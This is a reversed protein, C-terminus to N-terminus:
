SQMINSTNIKVLFFKFFVEGWRKGKARKRGSCVMPAHNVFCTGYRVGTNQKRLRHHYFSYSSCKHTAAQSPETSSQPAIQGYIPTGAEIIVGWTCHVAMQYGHVVAPPESDNLRCYIHQPPVTSGMTHHWCHAAACRQSHTSTAHAHSRTGGEGHIEFTSVCVCLGQGPIRTVRRTFVDTKKVRPSFSSLRLLVKSTSYNTFKM